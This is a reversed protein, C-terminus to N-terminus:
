NVVVGHLHLPSHLYLEVRRSRQVLYLILATIQKCIGVVNQIPPLIVGTLQHIYAYNMINPLKVYM